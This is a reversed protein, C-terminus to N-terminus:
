KVAGSRQFPSSQAQNPPASTAIPAECWKSLWTRV